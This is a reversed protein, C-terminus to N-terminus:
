LVSPEIEVVAISASAHEAKSHRGNRGGVELPRGFGKASLALRRNRLHSFELARSARVSRTTTGKRCGHSSPSRWPRGNPGHARKRWFLSAVLRRQAQPRGM